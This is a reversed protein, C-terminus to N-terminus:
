RQMHAPHTYKSNSRSYRSHQQSYGPPGPLYGPNHYGPYYTYSPYDTYTTYVRSESGPGHGLKLRRYKSQQSITHMKPFFITSLLVGGSFILATLILQM